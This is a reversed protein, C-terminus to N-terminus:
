TGSARGARTLTLSAHDDPGDVDFAIGENEVVAVRLGRKQAEAVHRAFSEPDGFRTRLSAPPALGLANTHRGLHDRVVVVDHAELADLVADVDSPVLRPLDAMLVLAADAGRGVVDDLAADVVGALSGEGADRRVAAGRARALDEVEDGDTAVLTGALRSCGRLVDLTHELLRRAFRSREEDNLVGRLRSKGRAPSKAPIIAWPAVRKL